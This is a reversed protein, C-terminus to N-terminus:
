RSSGFKVWSSGVKVGTFASRVNRCRVSVSSRLLIDALRWHLYSISGHPFSALLVHHIRCKWKTEGFGSSLKFWGDSILAEIARHWTERFNTDVYGSISMEKPSLLWFSTRKFHKLQFRLPIPHASVQDWSLSGDVRNILVRAPHSYIFPRHYSQSTVHRASSTQSRSRNTRMLDDIRFNRFSLSM